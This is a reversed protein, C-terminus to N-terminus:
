LTVADAGAFECGLFRAPDSLGDAPNGFEHRLTLAKVLAPAPRAPPGIPGIMDGQLVSVNAGVPGFDVRKAPDVTQWEIRGAFGDLAVPHPFDILEGPLHIGNQEPIAEFAAPQAAHLKM